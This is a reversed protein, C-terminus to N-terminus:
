LVKREVGDRHLRPRHQRLCGRDVRLGHLQRAGGGGVPTYTKIFYELLPVPKQTPHYKERDHPFRQIDRPYRTGHNVTKTQKCWKMDYNTSPAGSISKYPKGTTMQPNYVMANSTDKVYCAASKSFILINEHAKMPAFKCNLRGTAMPKEWIWEYKLMDLNSAGLVKDFPTQAFLAVCGNRKVIRKYEAWLLDLPLPTDWRNKTTGYPLDCLILDISEPSIDKM